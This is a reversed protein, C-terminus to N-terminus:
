VEGRGDAKNRLRPPRGPNADGARVTAPLRVSRGSRCGGAPAPDHLRGTVSEESGSPFASLCFRTGGTQASQGRADSLKPSGSTVGDTARLSLTSKSDGEGGVSCACPHPVMIAIWSQGDQRREGSGDHGRRPLGVAMRQANCQPRCSDFGSKERVRSVGSHRDVGLAREYAPFAGEIMVPAGTVPRPASSELDPVIGAVEVPEGFRDPAGAAM